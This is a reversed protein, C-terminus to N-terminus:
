LLLIVNFFNCYRLTNVTCGTSIFQHLTGIQWLQRRIESNHVIDACLLVVIPIWEWGYYLRYANFEVFLNPTFAVVLVRAHQKPTVDYSRGTPPTDLRLGVPQNRGLPTDWSM